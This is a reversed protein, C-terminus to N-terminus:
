YSNDTHNAHLRGHTRDLGELLTRPETSTLKLEINPSGDRECLLLHTAAAWVLCTPGGLDQAVSEVSYGEVVNPADGSVYPYVQRVLLLTVILIAMPMIHKRMTHSRVQLKAKFLECM